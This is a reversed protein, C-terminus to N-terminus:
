ITKLFQLARVISCLTRQWTIVGRSKYFTMIKDRKQIQILSVIHWTMIKDLANHCGLGRRGTSARYLVPTWCFLIHHSNYTCRNNQILATYSVKFWLATRHCNLRCHLKLDFCNVPFQLPLAWRLAPATLPRLRPSEGAVTRGVYWGHVLSWTKMKKMSNFKSFLWFNREWCVM